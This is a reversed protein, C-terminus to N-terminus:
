TGNVKLSEMEEDMARNWRTSEKSQMAERFSNPENSKLELGAVLASFVFDAFSYRAPPRIERRERDKSLQYNRLNEGSLPQEEHEDEEDEQVVEGETQGEQIPNLIM